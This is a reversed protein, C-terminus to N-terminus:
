HQLFKLFYNNLSCKVFYDWFTCCHLVHANSLANLADMSWHLQHWNAWQQKTNSLQSGVNFNFIFAALLSWPIILSFVSYAISKTELSSFHLSRNNDILLCFSPNELMFKWQWLLLAAMILFLIKMMEAIEKYCIFDKKDDMPPFEFCKKWLSKPCSKWHNVSKMLFFDLLHPLVM